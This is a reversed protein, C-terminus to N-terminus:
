SCHSTTISEYCPSRLILYQVDANGSHSAPDSAKPAGVHSQNGVFAVTDDENRRNLEIAELEARLWALGAGM